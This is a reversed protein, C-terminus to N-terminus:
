IWFPRVLTTFCCQSRPSNEPVRVNNTFYPVTKCLKTSTREQIDEKLQIRNMSRTWYSGRFNTLLYILPAGTNTNVTTRTNVEKTDGSTRTGRSVRPLFYFTFVIGKNTDKKCFPSIGITRENVNSSLTLQSESGYDTGHGEAGSVM